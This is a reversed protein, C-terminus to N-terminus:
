SSGLAPPPWSSVVVVVAVVAAPVVAVVPVVVVTAVVPVVPVVSAACCLCQPEHSRRVGCRPDVVCAALLLEEVERCLM